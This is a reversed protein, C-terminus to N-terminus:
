NAISEGERIKKTMWTVADVGYNDRIAELEEHAAIRGGSLLVIEDMLPEAERIEHTSLFVTQSADTFQIMGKIIDSRVMPDFGSFPEDLLYYDAERGFTAAMKARGRNGKSLKKLPANRDVNLFQAVINAKDYSFDEYQSEYFRFLEDVTFYPYFLDTDPMYAIQSAIKRTVKIGDVEASGSSPTVLGAIVKILTTKGSGNEGVLGIIKGKDLTLDVGALAKKRGYTKEIGELRIMGREGM